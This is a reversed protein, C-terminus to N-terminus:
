RTFGPLARNSRRIGPEILRGLIIQRQRTWHSASNSGVLGLKPPLLLRRPLHLLFENRVVKPWPDIVNLPRQHPRLTTWESRNVARGIELAVLISGRGKRTKKHRQNCKGNPQKNKWIETALPTNELTLLTKGIKCYKNRRGIFFTNKRMRCFM